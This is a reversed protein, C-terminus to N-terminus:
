SYITPLTLHTYSVTDLSRRARAEADHLIDVPRIGADAAEPALHLRVQLLRQATGADDGIARHAVEVLPCRPEEDEGARHHRRVGMDLDDLHVHRDADGAHDDRGVVDDM